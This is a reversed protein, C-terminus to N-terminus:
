PPSNTWIEFIACAVAPAFQTTAECVTWRGRGAIKGSERAPCDSQRTSRGAIKECEHDIRPRKFLGAQPIGKAEGLPRIGRFSRHCPSASASGSPPRAFGDIEWRQVTRM